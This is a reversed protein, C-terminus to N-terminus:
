AVRMVEVGAGDTGISTMTNGKGWLAYGQSNAAQRIEAATFGSNGVPITTCDGPQMGAMFATVYSSRAGHPYKREVTPSKRTPAKKTELEGIETGDPLIIKYQAKVANLVNVLRLVAQKQLELM